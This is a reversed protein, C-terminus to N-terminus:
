AWYCYWGRPWPFTAPKCLPGNVCESRAKAQAKALVQAFAAEFDINENAENGVRYLLEDMRDAM